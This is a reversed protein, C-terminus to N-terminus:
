KRPANLSVITIVTYRLFDIDRSSEPIKETDGTSLRRYYIKIKLM